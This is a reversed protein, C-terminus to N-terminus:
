YDFFALYVILGFLVLFFLADSRPTRYGTERIQTHLERLSLRLSLKPGGFATVSIISWCFTLWGLIGHRDQPWIEIAVVAAIGALAALALGFKTSPTPLKM